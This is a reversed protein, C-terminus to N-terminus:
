KTPALDQSKKILNGLLFGVMNIQEEAKICDLISMGGLDEQKSDILAYFTWADVFEPDWCTLVVRLGPPVYLSGDDKGVFQSHPILIKGDSTPLGHIERTTVMNKVEGGSSNGLLYAVEWPTYLPAFAKIFPEPGFDATEPGLDTM